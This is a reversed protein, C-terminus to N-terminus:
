FNVNKLNANELNANELNAYKLNAYRLNADQLNANKLSIKREVATEVCKKFSNFQGSFIVENNTNLIEYTKMKYREKKEANNTLTQIM